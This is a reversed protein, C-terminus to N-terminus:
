NAITLKGTHARLANFIVIVDISEQLIAGILPSFKGTAFVLMLLLSIGIGIVISQTAIGFTRKAITLATLVHGINDSLIVIDASEGAASDKRGNLAIGVDAATLVPADELGDGVFVLPRETAQDVIRVKDGPSAGAQVQDIGLKKALSRATSDSDGTVMLLNKIRLRHLARALLNTQPRLEDRLVIVGALQGDVAVCVATQAPNNLGFKAPLRVQEDELLSSRGVLITKGKISARLGRNPLEQVHKAKTLKLKKAQAEQVIAQALAHSSAQELSAALTLIETQTFPPSAKIAEVRAEGRTLTGTKDFVFTQAEGLKELAAGSKVVIGYRSARSMGSMLAIPTALLLPAPTAVVIVELFRIAQGSLVWVMVAIACAAFTFPLSYRETLRVFPAQHVSVGGLLKIVRQYQSDAASALAKATVTGELVLSGSLLTDKVQKTQHLHEGVLITEDLNAEGEIIIADVPVIEGAKVVFKDGPHINGVPVLQPKGKRLVHATQPAHKLLSRLESRARYEAYRILGKSGTYMLVVVLAAWLQSLIVCGVVAIVTLLDTAYKGARLDHWMEVLIPILELIAVGGLIWEVALHQGLLQLSLSILAAILALSFLKYDRLFGSVQKM